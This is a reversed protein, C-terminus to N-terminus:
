EINKNKEKNNNSSKDSALQEDNEQEQKGYKEEWPVAIGEPDDFVDDDDDIEELIKQIEEDIKDDEVPLSGPDNTILARQLLTERITKTMEARQRYDEYNVLENAFELALKEANTDNLKPKIKVYVEKEPDGDLLFYARDLFVYSASYISDLNYIKPNLKLIAYDEKLEIQQLNMKM